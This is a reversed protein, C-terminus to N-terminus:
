YDIDFVGQERFAILVNAMWEALQENDYAQYYGVALAAHILEHYFTRCRDTATMPEGHCTRSLTIAHRVPDYAGDTSTNPDAGEEQEIRDVHEVRIHDTFITVEHINEINM